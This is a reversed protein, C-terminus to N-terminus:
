AATLTSNSALIIPRPLIRVQSPLAMLNVTQESGRAVVSVVNDQRFSFFLKDRLKDRSDVSPVSNISTIFAQGFSGLATFIPMKTVTRAVMSVHFDVSPKHIGLCLRM